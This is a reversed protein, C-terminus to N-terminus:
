LSEFSTGTGRWRYRHSGAQRLLARREALEAAKSNALHPFIRVEQRAPLREQSWALGLPGRIRYDLDGFAAMGRETPTLRYELTTRSRPPADVLLTPPDARAGDPVRDALVLVLPFGGRNEVLWSIRDPQGVHLQGPTERSLRVRPRR